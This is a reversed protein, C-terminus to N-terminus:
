SDPVSPLAPCAYCRLNDLYALLSFSAPDEELYPAIFASLQRDLLQVRVAYAPIGTDSQLLMNVMVFFIYGFLIFVAVVLVLTIIMSIWRPIRMKDMRSLVPNVVIFVFLAIVLPIMINATMKLIYLILVAGFGILINRIQRGTSDNPQSLNM